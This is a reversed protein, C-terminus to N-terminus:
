YPRTPESIHILSLYYEQGNILHTSDGQDHFVTDETALVALTDFLGSGMARLLTYDVVDENPSGRPDVPESWSLEIFGNGGFGSFDSVPDPNQYSQDYELAGMDAVTGDPDPDGAPDGGDIGFSEWLLSFDLGPGNVFLPDLDLNGTGDAGGGVISYSVAM